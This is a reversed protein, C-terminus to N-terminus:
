TPGGNAALLGLLPDVDLLDTPAYGNGGSSKGFLNHGLSTLTGYLDPGGSLARNGAVITDGLTVGGAVIGGGYPFKGGSFNRAITSNRITVTALGGAQIGGGGSTYFAPAQNEAVTSNVITLISGFASAIGGGLSEYTGPGAANSSVTSSDVTLK